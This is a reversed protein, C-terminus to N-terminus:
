CNWARERGTTGANQKLDRSLLASETQRRRDTKDTDTYETETQRDQRHCHIKDGDTQRTQTLTNQRRRDTKDTDTYETEM